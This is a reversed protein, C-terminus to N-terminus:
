TDEPYIALLMRCWMAAVRNLHRTANMVGWGVLWLPGFAVFWLLVWLPYVNM